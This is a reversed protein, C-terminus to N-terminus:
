ETENKVDLTPAQEYALAGGPTGLPAPPDDLGVGAGALAAGVGIEVIGIPNSPDHALLPQNPGLTSNDLTNLPNIDLAPGNAASALLHLAQIHATHNLEVRADVHVQQKPKGWAYEVVLKSVQIKEGTTADSKEDLTREWFRIAKNALVDLRAMKEHVLAAAGRPKGKPKIEVM